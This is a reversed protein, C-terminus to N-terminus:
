LQDLNKERPKQPWLEASKALFLFPWPLFVAMALLFPGLHSPNGKYINSIPLFVSKPCLVFYHVFDLKVGRPTAAEESNTGARGRQGFVEYLCWSTVGVRKPTLTVERIKGVNLRPYIDSALAAVVM